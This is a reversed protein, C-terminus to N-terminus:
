IFLGILTHQHKRSGFMTCVLYSTHKIFSLNSAFGNMAVFRLVSALSCKAVKFRALSANDYSSINRCDKEEKGKKKKNKRERKRKKREGKKEEKKEGKKGGRGRGGEGKKSMKDKRKKM